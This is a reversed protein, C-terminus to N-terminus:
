ISIINYYYNFFNYRLLYKNENWLPIDLKILKSEFIFIKIYISKWFNDNFKEFYNFKIWFNENFKKICIFKWIFINNNIFEYLKKNLQNFKIIINLNFQYYLDNFFLYYLDM